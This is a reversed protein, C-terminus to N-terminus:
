HVEPRCSENFFLLCVNSSPGFINAAHSKKEVGEFFGLPELLATLTSCFSAATFTSILSRQAAEQWSPPYDLLVLPSFFLAHTATQDSYSSSLASAASSIYRWRAVFVCNCPHRFRQRGSIRSLSPDFFRMFLQFYPM